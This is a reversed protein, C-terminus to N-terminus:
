VTPAPDCHTGDCFDSAAFTPQAPDCHTGDCLDSAAVTNTQPAETAGVTPVAAFLAALAIAAISAKM